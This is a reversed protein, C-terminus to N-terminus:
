QGNCIMKLIMSPVEMTPDNVLVIDFTSLYDELKSEPNADNLFGIKIVNQVFGLELAMRADGLADGLIVVNPKPQRVFADTLGNNNDFFKKMSVEKNLTHVCYDKNGLLARTTPDWAFRNGIIAMNETLLSWRKLAGEVVDALGATSIIFPVNARSISSCLGDFGDRMILGHSDLMTELMSETLGCEKMAKMEESMWEEIFPTKEEISLKTNTEIPWYKQFLAKMHQALKPEVLSSRKIVCYTSPLTEKKSDDTWRKTITFDFDAMLTLKNAGDKSARTLKALFCDLDKIKVNSRGTLVAAFQCLDAKTM